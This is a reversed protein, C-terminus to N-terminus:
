GKEVKTVKNGSADTQSSVVFFTEGGVEAREVGVEVAYKVADYEKGVLYRGDTTHIRHRQM